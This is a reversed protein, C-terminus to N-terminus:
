LVHSKSGKRRRLKRYYKMIRVSEVPYTADTFPEFEIPVVNKERNVVGNPMVFMDNEMKKREEM